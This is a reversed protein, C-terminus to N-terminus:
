SGTRQKYHRTITFVDGDAKEIIHLKIVPLNTTANESSEIAQTRSLFILHTKNNTIVLHDNGDIGQISFCGINNDNFGDHCEFKNKLYNEVQNKALKEGKTGAGVFLLVLILAIIFGGLWFFLPVNISKSVSDFVNSLHAKFGYKWNKTEESDQYICNDVDPPVDNIEKRLYFAPENYNVFILVIFVILMLGSWVIFAPGISAAVLWVSIFGSSFVPRNFIEPGVGFYGFYATEFTWYLAQLLPWIGGITIISVILKLTLFKKIEPIPIIM